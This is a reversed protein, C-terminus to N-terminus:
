IISGYTETEDAVDIIYGWHEPLLGAEVATILTDIETASLASATASASANDAQITALAVQAAGNSIADVASAASAVASAESAVASAAAEATQDQITGGGLFSLSGVNIIDNGNLDFNAGMSNPPSGDLSLTNDFKDNLAEFNFNLQTNSAYGSSITKITATKAM